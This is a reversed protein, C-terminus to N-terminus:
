QPWIIKNEKIDYRYLCNKGKIFYGYEELPLCNTTDVYVYLMKVIKNTSPNDIKNNTITKRWYARMALVRFRPNWTKCHKEEYRAKTKELLEEKMKDTIVIKDRIPINTRFTDLPITIGGNEDDIVAGYLKCANKDPNRDKNSPQSEGPKYDTKSEEFSDVNVEFNEPLKEENEYNALDEFESLKIELEEDQYSLSRSDIYLREIETGDKLVVKSYFDRLINEKIVEMKDITCPQLIEDDLIFYGKPLMLVTDNGPTTGGLAVIIDGLRLGPKIHLVNPTEYINGKYDKVKLSGKMDNYEDLYTNIGIVELNLLNVSKVCDNYVAGARLNYGDNIIKTYLMNTLAKDMSRGISRCTKM